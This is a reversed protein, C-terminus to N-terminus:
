IKIDIASFFFKPLVCKIILKIELFNFKLFNFIGGNNFFILLINYIKSGLFIKYLYYL